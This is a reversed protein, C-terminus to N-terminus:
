TQLTRAVMEINVAGNNSTGETMVHFYAEPNFYGLFICKHSFLSKGSFAAVNKPAQPGKSQDIELVYYKYDSAGLFPELHFMGLHCLGFCLCPPFIPM